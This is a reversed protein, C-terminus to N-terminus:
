LKGKRAAYAAVRAAAEEREKEKREEIKKLIVADQYAKEFAPTIYKEIVKGFSSLKYFKKLEKLHYYTLEPVIISHYRKGERVSPSIAAYKRPRGPKKKRRKRKRRQYPAPKEPIGIEFGPPLELPEALPDVAEDSDEIDEVPETKKTSM